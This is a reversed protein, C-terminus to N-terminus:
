DDTWMTATAVFPFILAYGLPMGWRHLLVMAPVGLLAVVTRWSM